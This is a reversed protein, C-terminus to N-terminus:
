YHTHHFFCLKPDKPPHMTLLYVEDNSNNSYNKFLKLYHASVRLNIYEFKSDLDGRSQVGTIIIEAPRYQDNYLPIFFTVPNNSANGVPTSFLGGPIILRVPSATPMSTPPATPLDITFTFRVEWWNKM